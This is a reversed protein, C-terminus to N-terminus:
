IKKWSKILDELFFGIQSQCSWASVKFKLNIKMTPDNKPLNLPSVTIM